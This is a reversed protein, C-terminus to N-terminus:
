WRSLHNPDLCEGVSSCCVPTDDTQTVAVGEPMALHLAKAQFAKWGKLHELTGDDVSLAPKSSYTKPSKAEVTSAKVSQRVFIQGNDFDVAGWTIGCAEGRRIVTALMIRIAVIGSIHALGRISSRGFMNGAKVARAEKAEFDAYAKVEHEDLMVRLRASEEDTLSRRSTVKDVKPDEIQKCPNRVLWDSDVAYEFVRKTTAFVGNTTTNSLNRATKVM